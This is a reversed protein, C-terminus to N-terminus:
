SLQENGGFGIPGEGKPFFNRSALTRMLEYKCVMNVRRTCLCAGVCKWNFEASDEARAHPKM